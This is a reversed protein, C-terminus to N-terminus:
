KCAYLFERPGSDTLLRNSIPGYSTRSHIACGRAAENDILSQDTGAYQVLVKDDELDSIVPTPPPAACAALGVLLTFIAFTRM